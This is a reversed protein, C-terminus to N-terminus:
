KITILRKTTGIATTPRSTSGAPELGSKNTKVTGSAVPFSASAINDKIPPNEDAEEITITATIATDVMTDLWITSGSQSQALRM